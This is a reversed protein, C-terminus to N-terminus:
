TPNSSLKSVITDIVFMLPFQVLVNYLRKFLKPERYIRYFARLNFRNIWDPYYKISDSTQHLFGGCTYAIGQYGMKKLDLAFQEQLPAGMGIIVFDPNIQVIKYIDASRQHDSDFFGDRYGIIKITPYAVKIQMITGEIQDKKAGIFFVSKNERVVYEFLDQALGTMDFSLRRIKYGWLLKILKCMFFGDVYIGDMEEYLSQNKRVIHYSYPNICTYIRGKLIFSDNLYSATSAKIKDVILKCNM